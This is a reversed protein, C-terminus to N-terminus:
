ALYMEGEGKIFCKDIDIGALYARLSMALFTALGLNLSISTRVRGSRFAREM